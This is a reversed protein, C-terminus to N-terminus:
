YLLCYKTIICSYIICNYSYNIHNKFEISFNNKIIWVIFYNDRDSSIIFEEKTIENFFYKISTIYGEHGKLKKILTDKKDKLSYIFILNNYSSIIYIKSEQYSMYVDFINNGSVETYYNENKISLNQKFIINDLNSKFNLSQIDTFKKDFIINIHEKKINIIFNLKYLRKDYNILVKKEKFLNIIIDLAEKLNININKDSYLKNFEKKPM